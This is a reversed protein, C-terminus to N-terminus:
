INTSQIFSNSPISMHLWVDLTQSIWMGEIETRLWGAKCLIQTVLGIKEESHVHSCTDNNNYSKKPM